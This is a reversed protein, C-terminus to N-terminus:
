NINDEPPNDRYRTRNHNAIAMKCRSLAELCFGTTLERSGWSVSQQPGGFFHPASDWGGDAAQTSLLYNVSSRAGELADQSLQAIACLSLATHLSHNGFRGDRRSLSFLRDCALPAIAEFGSVGPRICQAVAYYFSYPDRYWKDCKAELGLAIIEKLWAIIPVSESTNGLYRLVNANVVGDVDNYSAESVKWIVLLRQWTAERLLSTWVRPHLISSFRPVFWTYFLGDSRRNAFFLHKNDPFPIGCQRLIASACAMDDLDAPSFDHLDRGDRRADRNWFRWRGGSDMEHLIAKCGRRIIPEAEPSGTALLSHLIQTTPFFASDELIRNGEYHHTVQSPFHGSASQRESLFSFALEIADEVSHSNM